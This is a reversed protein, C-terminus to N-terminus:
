LTGPEFKPYNWTGTKPPARPQMSRRKASAAAAAGVSGVEAKRLSRGPRESGVVLSGGAELVSNQERISEVDRLSEALREELRSQLEDTAAGLRASGGGDLLKDLELDIQEYRPDTPMAGFGSSSSSRSGGVGGRPPLTRAKAVAKADRQAEQSKRQEEQAQLKQFLRAYFRIRKANTQAMEQHSSLERAFKKGRKVLKKNEGVLKNIRNSQFQLETVLRANEEMTDKTTQDLEARMKATMEARTRKVENNLRQILHETQEQIEVDKARLREEYSSRMEDIQTHLGQVLADHEDKKEQFERLVRTSRELAEYKDHIEKIQANRELRQAELEQAHHTALSTTEAQMAAVAGEAATAKGMAAGLQQKLHAISGDMTSREEEMARKQSLVRARLSLVESRVTYM